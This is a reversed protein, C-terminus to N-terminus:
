KEPSLGCVFIFLFLAHHHENAIQSDRNKLSFVSAFDRLLETSHPMLASFLRLLECCIPVTRANFSFPSAFVRQLETSHPM